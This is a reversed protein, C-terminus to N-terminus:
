CRSARLSLRNCCLEMPNPALALAEGFRTRAVNGKGSRLEFEGLAAHCFPYRAFREAHVIARIEEVGRRPGERQGIAIARNLAVVPSPRLAMLQNNLVVIM